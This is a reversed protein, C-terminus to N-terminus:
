TMVKEKLSRNYQNMIRQFSCKMFNLKANLKVYNSMSLLKMILYIQGILKCFIKHM